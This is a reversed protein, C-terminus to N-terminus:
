LYKEVLSEVIKQSLLSQETEFTLIIREGPFIENKQYSEIKKIASRVYEQKDMMGEHEWYIEQGTKSSLFTFDPYVVGYGKLYIPKEYKYLINKRYFYDALIKESKSRVREGRDTLIIPVGEQFEKGQYPAEYWKQVKQEWTDVLPTILKKRDSHLSNYLNRMQKDVDKELMKSIQVLQEEAKNIISKNYVKQALQRCLKINKKSIYIGNRDKICHYYRCRNKCKSIRLYGEPMHANEMKAKAIIKELRQKEELLADEFKQM